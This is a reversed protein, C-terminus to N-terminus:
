GALFGSRGAVLGRGRSAARAGAWGTLLGQGRETRFYKMVPSRIQIGKPIVIQTTLRTTVVMSLRSGATSSGLPQSPISTGPRPTTSATATTNRVPRSVAFMM